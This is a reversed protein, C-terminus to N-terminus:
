PIPLPVKRPEPKADAKAPTMAYEVLVFGSALAAAFEEKTLPVHPRFSQVTRTAGAASEYTYTGVYVVLSTAEGGGAPPLLAAPYSRGQGASGAVVYKLPADDTLCTTDIRSMHIVFPRLAVISLLAASKDLVQLVKSYQLRRLETGPEPVSQEVWRPLMVAKGVDVYKGDLLVVKDKFRAHMADLWSATRPKGKYLIPPPDQKPKAPEVPQAKPPVQPSVESAAPPARAPVPPPGESEAPQAPAAAVLVLWAFLTAHM